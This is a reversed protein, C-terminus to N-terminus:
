LENTSRIWEEVDRPHFYWFSGVRRAKPLRSSNERALKSITSRTKGLIEALEATGLALGSKQHKFLIERARDSLQAM